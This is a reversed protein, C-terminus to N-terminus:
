FLLFCPVVTICIVALTAIISAQDFAKRLSGVRSFHQFALFGAIVLSVAAGAQTGRLKMTQYPAVIVVLLALFPLDLERPIYYFLRVLLALFATWTGYEGKIWSIVINPAQLAFLPVLFSKQVATGQSVMLLASSVASVWQLTAPDFASYFCVTSTGRCQRRKQSQTGKLSRLSLPNFHSGSSSILLLNNPKSLAQRQIRPSLFSRIPPRSLISM